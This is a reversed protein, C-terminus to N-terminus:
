QGLVEVVVVAGCAEAVFGAVAVDEDHRQGCQGRRKGVAPVGDFSEGRRCRRLV